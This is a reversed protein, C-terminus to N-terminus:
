CEREKEESRERERAIENKKESAPVGGLLLEKDSGSTARDGQIWLARHNKAATCRLDKRSIQVVVCSHKSRCLLFTNTCLLLHNQQAGSSEKGVCSGEIEICTASASSQCGSIPSTNTDQQQKSGLICQIPRGQLGQRSQAGQEPMARWMRQVAWALRGHHQKSLLSQQRKLKSKQLSEMIRSWPQSALSVKGINATTWRLSRIKPIWVGDSELSGAEPNLGKCGIHRKLAAWFNKLANDLHREFVSLCPADVVERPLRNWHKVLRETFLHKRIDLGSCVWASRKKNCSRAGPALKAKPSLVRAIHLEASGSSLLKRSPNQMEDATTINAPKNRHEKGGREWCRPKPSFPFRHIWGGRQKNSQEWSLLAAGSLSTVKERQNIQTRGVLSSNVDVEPSFGDPGPAEQVRQSLSPVDAATNTRQKAFHQKYTSMLCDTNGDRVKGHFTPFLMLIALAMESLPLNDTDMQM